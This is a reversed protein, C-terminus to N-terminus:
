LHIRGYVFGAIVTLIILFLVMKLLRFDSERYSAKLQGKLQEIENKAQTRGM